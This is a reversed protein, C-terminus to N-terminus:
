REEVKDRVLHGKWNRAMDRDGGLIHEGKNEIVRFIVNVLWHTRM